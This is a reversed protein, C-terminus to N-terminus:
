GRMKRHETGGRTGERLGLSIRKCLGCGVCCNGGWKGESLGNQTKKEVLHGDCLAGGGGVGKRNANWVKGSRFRVREGTRPHNVATCCLSEKAGSPSTRGSSATHKKSGFVM